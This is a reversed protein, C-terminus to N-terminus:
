HGVDAITLVCHAASVLLPWSLDDDLIHWNCCLQCLTSHCVSGYGSWHFLYGLMSRCCHISAPKCLEEISTLALDVAQFIFLHRHFATGGSQWVHETAFWLPYQDSLACFLFSPSLLFLSECSDSLAQPCRLATRLCESPHSLPTFYLVCGEVGNFNGPDV